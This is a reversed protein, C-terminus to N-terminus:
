LEGEFGDCNFLISYPGVHFAVMVRIHGLPNRAPSNRGQLRGSCGGGLCFSLCKFRGLEPSSPGQVARGKPHARGFAGAQIDDRDGM